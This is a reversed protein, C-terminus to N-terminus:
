GLLWIASGDTGLRFDDTSTVQETRITESSDMNAHYVIVVPPSVSTAM